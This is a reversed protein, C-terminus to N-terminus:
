STTRRAVVVMGSSVRLHEVVEFYPLCLLRVPEANAVAMLANRLPANSVREDLWYRISQQLSWMRGSQGTVRVTDWGTTALMHRIVPETFLYLHRPSDWDAWAPGFLRAEIGSPNPLGLILTGGPRTIRAAERLTARPQHLHELVYWLTVLDFRHDAMAADVLDGHFVPLNLRTRVYAAAQGDQEVGQVRWGARRLGDLFTGTACGVDLATGGNGATSRVLRLRKALEYRRNFRRWASPEDEIAPLFPAYAAPYYAAM